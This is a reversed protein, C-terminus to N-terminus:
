RAMEEIMQMLISVKEENTVKAGYEEMVEELANKFFHGSTSLKNGVPTYYKAIGREDGSPIAEMEAEAKDTIEKIAASLEQRFVSKEMGTKWDEIYTGTMEKGIKSAIEYENNTKVTAAYTRLAAAKSGLISHKQRETLQDHWENLCNAINDSGSFGFEKRIISIVRAKLYDIHNEIMIRTQFVKEAVQVYDNTGFVLPIKDFIIDRPNLYLDSFLARFACIEKINEDDTDPETFIVSTQPLSRYWSQMLCTVKALRNRRGVDNCYVEFANFTDELAAVYRTKQVSEEELYLYYQDPTRIINSFTEHSLTVEKSNLYVVPMNSLKLLHDALFLPIVGERMGYPASTLEDILVSFRQKRNLCNLVFRDIVQGVGNLGADAEEPYAIQHLTARYITAEASTAEYYKDYLNEGKLMDDLLTARAKIMAATLTHRNILEHNIRPTQSYAQDCLDSVVRNLGFIGADIPGNAGYITRSQFYCDRIQENLEDETDGILNDLEKAIVQNNDIFTSDTRLYRAALFRQVKDEFFMQQPFVLVVCLDNLQELHKVLADTDFEGPMILIIIGDANDNQKLYKRSKLKLFQQATMFKFNFYRTIAHEQNHKKPTIYKFRSIHDLENPVDIRLFRKKICDSIETELDIGINNKFEYAGSRKKYEILSADVLSQIALQFPEEPIGVALRLYEDKVPFEDPKNIIRIVAMAKIISKEVENSSKGLTFDAKLWEHHVESDSYDEFLPQFYDYVRDIGVFDAKKNFSVIQELGNREKSTVFTFITRENQAIKESLELLLMAAAPPLPFCGKAIIRTFDSENFLNRFNSLERSAGTIIQFSEDNAAWEDFADTKQIADAILEYNNKSSVTFFVEKLRGEVGEFANLLAKPLPTGYAKISKHAVCPIHLQEDKSGNALECMDQLIKMDKAFGAVEHGEIYKSFEDFVIYIGKYGFRECLIRNVSRYVSIVEDDVNPNFQSGSTLDPYMKKFESIAASDFLELRRILDEVPIEVCRACFAEYTGPYHDQWNRITKLAETFVSDPIVDDLGARHLATTLGKMFARDLTINAANIIVPLMPSPDASITDILQTSVPEVAKIRDVLASLEPADLKGLLALLVLLLHSKGKGYPGILVTARNGSYSQVEQLYSCLIGVSSHTPIYGDLKTRSNLDLLLNVSKEFRNDIHVLQNLRM